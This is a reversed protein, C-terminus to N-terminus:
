WHGGRSDLKAAQAVANGLANGTVFGAPATRAFEYQALQDMLDADDGGDGGRLPSANDRQAIKYLANVRAAAGHLHGRHLGSVGATGVGSLTLVTGVAVSGVLAARWLRIPHEMEAEM